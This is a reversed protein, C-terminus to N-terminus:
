DAARAKRLYYTKEPGAATAPPEAGARAEAAGTRRRVEIACAPNLVSNKQQNQFNVEVVHTGECLDDPLFIRVRDPDGGALLEHRVREGDARVVISDALLMRRQWGWAKRRRLGDDLEFVLSPSSGAEVMGDGPEVLKVRPLGAHAYRALALFLGYAERLVYEPSRLRQEEAPNSYFSCECLAAPMQAARLVAFGGPYMLLDSKVPVDTAQDLDLADQLGDALYRALDLSAPCRDVAGHHWVSSYNTGPKKPMANHHLSIFLDAPWRNAIQAREELSVNRDDDRTLRADAGAARLFEALFQALRLNIEAERVGTPGRKYGREHADGGHGPDLVIRVDKLHKSWTPLSYPRQGIRTIAFDVAAPLLTGVGTMPDASRAAGLGSITERADTAEAVDPVDAADPTPSVTPQPEIPSPVTPSAAPTAPSAPRTAAASGEAVRTPPTCNSTSAIAASVCVLWAARM